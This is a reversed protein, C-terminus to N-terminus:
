YFIYKKSKYIMKRNGIILKKKQILDNLRYKTFNFSNKPILDRNLNYQIIGLIQM